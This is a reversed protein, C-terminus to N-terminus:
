LICVDDPRRTPSTFPQPSPQDPSGASHSQMLSPEPLVSDGSTNEDLEVDDVGEIISEDPQEGSNFHKIIKLLKKTKERNISKNGDFNPDYLNHEQMAVWTSFVFDARYQAPRPGQPTLLWEIEIAKFVGDVLANDPDKYYERCLETLESLAGTFIKKKKSEDMDSAGLFEVMKSHKETTATLAKEINRLRTELEALTKSNHGKDDNIITEIENTINIMISQYSHMSVEMGIIRLASVRQTRDELFPKLALARDAIDLRQSLDKIHNFNIEKLIDTVEEEEIDEYLSIHKDNLSAQNGAQDQSKGALEAMSASLKLSSKKKQWYEIASAHEKQM